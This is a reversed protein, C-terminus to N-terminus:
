GALHVVRTFPLENKAEGRLAITSRYRTAASGTSLLHMNADVPAPRVFPSENKPEGSALAAPATTFVSVTVLAVPFTRSLKM